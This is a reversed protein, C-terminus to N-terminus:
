SIKVIFYNMIKGSKAFNEFKGRPIIVFNIKRFHTTRYIKGNKRPKKQQNKKMYCKFFVEFFSKEFAVSVDLISGSVM